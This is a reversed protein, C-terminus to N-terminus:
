FPSDTLQLTLTLSTLTLRSLDSLKLSSVSHTNLSSVPGPEETTYLATFRGRVTLLVPQGSRGIGISPHSHLSYHNDTTVESCALHQSDTWDMNNACHDYMHVLEHALVTGVKEETPALNSCIVM